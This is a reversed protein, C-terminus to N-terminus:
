PPIGPREIVSGVLLPFADRLLRRSLLDRPPGHWGIPDFWAVQPDAMLASRALAPYGNVGSDPSFWVGQDLDAEATVALAAVEPDITHALVGSRGDELQYTMQELLERPDGGWADM